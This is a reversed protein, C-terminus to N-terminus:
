GVFAQECFLLTNELEKNFKKTSSPYIDFLDYNSKYVLSDHHECTDGGLVEITLDRNRCARKIERAMDLISFSKESGINIIRPVSDLELIKKVVSCVSSMAVFNREQLGSSKVIMKNTLVAQKCLDNAVLMWCNANKHTPAGVINSLRLVIGTFNEDIKSAYLVANEGALHSSAYPHKNNPCVDENIVGILPSTYVHATSLYIFKAIGVDRSVWVLRTTAVGNFELASVPDAICDQANMGASHVVVDCGTCALSLSRDDNWDLECVEANSLWEPVKQKKRSGLVVYHGQEVLYKAVRGGIYGFGGTILIKL